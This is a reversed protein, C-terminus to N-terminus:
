LACCLLLYRSFNDSLTLPYCRRHNGLAFDGKFEASWIYIPYKTIASRNVIPRSM